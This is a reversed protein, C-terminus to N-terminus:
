RWASARRSLTQFVLQETLVMVATLVLAWAFVLDTRLTDRSFNM